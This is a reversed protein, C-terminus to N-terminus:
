EAMLAGSGGGDAPFDKYKPLGDKMPLVTSEYNVHVTPKFPLTPLVGAFIDILGFAPLRVMLLGGCKGCAVRENMGTKSFSHLHEAGERVRVADTPWLTYANVPAGSYARCAQCHCYGMEVPPGQVELVVAGCYCRGEYTESM